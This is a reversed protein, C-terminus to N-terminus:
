VKKGAPYASDQRLKLSMDAVEDLFITGEHALDFKGRKERNSRYISGKRPRFLESEIL